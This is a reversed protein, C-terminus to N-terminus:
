ENANCLYKFDIFGYIGTLGVILPEIFFSLYRASIGVRGLRLVQDLERNM